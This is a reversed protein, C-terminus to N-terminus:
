DLELTAISKHFFISPKRQRAFNSELYKSINRFIDIKTTDYGQQFGVFPPAPM